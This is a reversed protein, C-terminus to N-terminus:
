MYIPINYDSTYRVHLMKTLLHHHLPLIALTSVLRSSFVNKPLPDPHLM